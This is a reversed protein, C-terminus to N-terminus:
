APSGPSVPKEEGDGAPTPMRFCGDMEQAEDEGAREVLERLQLDDDSM